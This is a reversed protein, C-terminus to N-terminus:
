TQSAAFAVILALWLVTRAVPHPWRGRAASVVASVAALAVAAIPVAAALTGPVLGFLALLREHVVGAFATIALAGAAAIWPSPRLEAVRALRRGM